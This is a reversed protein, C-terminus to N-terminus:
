SSGYSWISKLVLMTKVITRICLHLNIIGIIQPISDCLDNMSEELWMADFCQKLDYFQLDVPPSENNLVSNIVGYVIFLHNRINREKRGGVNSCSMNQDISEYKDDYILRDIIRRFTVM